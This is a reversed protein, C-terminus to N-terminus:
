AGRTKKRRRAVVAASALFPSYVIPPDAVSSRLREAAADFAAAWAELLRVYYLPPKIESNPILGEALDQLSFQICAVGDRGEGSARQAKVIASAEEQNFAIRVVGPSEPVCVLGTFPLIPAETNRM